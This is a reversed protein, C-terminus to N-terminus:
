LLEVGFRQMQESDDDNNFRFAFARGGNVYFNIAAGSNVVDIAVDFKRCLAAFEAKFQDVTPDAM